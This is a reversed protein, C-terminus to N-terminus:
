NRTAPSPGTNVRPLPQGPVRLGLAAAIPQWGDGPRWELLRRPPALARVAQNHRGRTIDDVARASPEELLRVPNTGVVLFSEASAPTLALRIVPDDHEPRDVLQQALQRASGAVGAV